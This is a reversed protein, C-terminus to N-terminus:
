DDGVLKLEEPAVHPIHCPFYNLEMDISIGTGRMELGNTTNINM